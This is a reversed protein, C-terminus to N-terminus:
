AIGGKQSKGPTLGPDMIGGSYVQSGPKPFVLYYLEDYKDQKQNLDKHHYFIYLM